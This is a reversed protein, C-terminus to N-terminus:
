GLTCGGRRRAARAHCRSASSRRGAVLLRFSLGADPLRNRARPEARILPPDRDPPAVRRELAAGRDRQAEYGDWADMNYSEMEPASNFDLQAFSVQQALLNWTSGSQELGDFLWREQAVGSVIGVARRGM